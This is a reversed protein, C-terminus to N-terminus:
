YKVDMFYFSLLLIPSFPLHIMIKTTKVMKASLDCNSRKPNLLVRRKEDHDSVPTRIEEMPTVTGGTGDGAKTSVYM